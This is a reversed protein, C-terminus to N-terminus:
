KHIERLVESTKREVAERGQSATEFLAPRIFPQAETDQTGLEIFAGYFQDGDRLEKGNAGITAIIARKNVKVEATLSDKLDGEDVPCLEKAKALTIQAAERLGEKLAKKALKDPTQQLKKSLEKAGYIQVSIGM